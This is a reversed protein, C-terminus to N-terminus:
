YTSENKVESENIFTELDEQKIRYRPRSNGTGVNLAKLRNETILNIVTRVDVRLQEAVEKTTLM